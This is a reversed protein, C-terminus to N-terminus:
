ASVVQFSISELCHDRTTKLVERYVCAATQRRAERYDKHQSSNKWPVTVNTATILPMPGLKLVLNNPDVPHSNQRIVAGRRVTGGHRKSFLLFGLRGNESTSPRAWPAPEAAGREGRGREAGSG